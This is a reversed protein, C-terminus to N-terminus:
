SKVCSECHIFVHLEVCHGRAVSLLCIERLLVLCVHVAPVWLVPAFHQIKDKHLVACTALAAVNGRRCLVDLLDAVVNVFGAPQLAALIQADTENRVAVM